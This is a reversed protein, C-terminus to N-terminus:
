PQQRRVSKLVVVSRATVLYKASAIPRDQEAFDNPSPLATDVVCLWDQPAGEQVTFMRDKWHTNVMVYLDDDGVSAGRLCYAFWYSEPGCDVPGTPGYWSVDERWFTDRAISPHAKRFAIMM